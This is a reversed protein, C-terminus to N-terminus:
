EPSAMTGPLESEFRGVLEVRLVVGTPVRLRRERVDVPVFHNVEVNDPRLGGGDTTPIADECLDGAVISVEARDPGELVVEVDVVERQRQSRNECELFEPGPAWESLLMEEVVVARWTDAPRSVM